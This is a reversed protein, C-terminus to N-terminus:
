RLPFKNGQAVLTLTATREGEDNLKDFIYPGRKVLIGCRKVRRDSKGARDTYHFCVEGKGGVTWKGSKTQKESYNIQISGDPGFYAHYGKETVKGRAQGKYEKVLFTKHTLLTTVEQSTLGQGVEAASLVQVGLLLLAACGALWFLNKGM